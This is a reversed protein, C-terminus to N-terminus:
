RTSLPAMWRTGYREYAMTMAGRKRALSAKGPGRRKTIGLLGYAGMFGAFFASAARSVAFVSIVGVGGFPPSSYPVSVM